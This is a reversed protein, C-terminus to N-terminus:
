RHQSEGAFSQLRSHMLDLLRKIISTQIQSQLGGAQMALISSVMAMMDMRLVGLVGPSGLPRHNVPFQGNPFAPHAADLSETTM